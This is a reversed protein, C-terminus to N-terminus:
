SRVLKAVLLYSHNKRAHQQTRHRMLPKGIQHLVFEDEIRFGILPLITCLHVHTLRQVHDAVAPQCKIFLIGNRRLVRRAEIIGSLYLTMVNEHCMNGNNRYCRDLSPKVGTGGVMYPPDFVLADFSAVDYPLCRFDVGTEIDSPVLDYDTREVNRWFVGNGFTVDAVKAGKAVYMRLAQPFVDANTGTICTLIPEASQWPHLRQECAVQKCVDYSDQDLPEEIEQQTM